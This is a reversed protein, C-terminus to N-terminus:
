VPLCRATEDIVRMLQQEAQELLLDNYFLDGCSYGTLCLEPLVLLNVQKADAQRIREIIKEANSKPDAVTVPVSAAAVRVFGDQM